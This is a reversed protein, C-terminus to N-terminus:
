IVWFEVVSIILKSKVWVFILDPHALFESSQQIGIDIKMNHVFRAIPEMFYKKHIPKMNSSNTQVLM